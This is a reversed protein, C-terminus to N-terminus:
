HWTTQSPPTSCNFFMVVPGGVLGIWECSLLVEVSSRREGVIDQFVLIDVISSLPKNDLFIEPSKPFPVHPILTCM